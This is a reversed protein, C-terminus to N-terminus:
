RMSNTATFAFHHWAPSGWVVNALVHGTILMATGTLTARHIRGLSVFDFAFLPLLLAYVYVDQGWHHSLSAGPLFWWMRDVAAQLLIATAFIMYRKHSDPRRRALFAWTFFVVFLVLEVVELFLLDYQFHEVPLVEALLQRRSAIIMSLGVLPALALSLLGLKRHQRVSGSAALTTQTILLALWTTMIAGHIWAVPHIEYAGSFHEHLNPAFGVVAVVAYFWALAVFFYRQFGPRSMASLGVHERGFTPQSPTIASQRMEIEWAASTAAETLSM